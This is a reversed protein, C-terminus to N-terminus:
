LRRRELAEDRRGDPGCLPAQRLEEQQFAITKRLIQITGQQLLVVALWVVAIGVRVFRM